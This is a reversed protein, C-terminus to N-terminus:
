MQIVVDDENIFDRDHTVIIIIKDKKLEQLYQKLANNSASDLASTPEDLILVDPNKILARLISLKQKEGGSINAANENIITELGDPLTSIYSELGLIKILEDAMGKRSQLIGPKDLTLNSAVTDALLTPEQQSIDLLNNRLNYMDVDANGNYLVLGTHNGAQLGMLIDMLTSKGTGNPGLIAYIRGKTFQLNMNQLVPKEGYSFSVNRLEIERVETLRVHGNPEHPIAELERLRNYSVMNNQITQGLNFFYRIAGLMMNFYSTIILFQGITLRGAIIERGGLLLLILQATILVLRDLGGFVYSARQNRFASGLLVDFSHNLRGIFYDFLSHLKIFRINLLQENLKAFFKSQAEQFEHSARYLIKRYLVYFTFYVASLGLLVGALIPHFAFMLGLALIIIISNVLVSQIIGICFSILSNADANIRQNLYATDQKDTYKLPARQLRKIFDTNLAYGMRTQLSVYLRGSIYGLILAAVGIAAYLAFYSYVFSMDTADALRDIFDGVIYPSVIGAMSTLISLIVYLFLCWKHQNLYHKTYTFIQKM